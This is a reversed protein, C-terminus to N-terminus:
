LRCLAGLLESNKIYETSQDHGYDPPSLETEGDEVPKERTQVVHMAGPRFEPRM